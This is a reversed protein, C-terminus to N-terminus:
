DGLVPTFGGVQREWLHRYVGNPIELLNSHTGQEVVEGQRLVVIRDMAMVTSLRHAIVILTKGDMLNHIADQVLAESESDLASTAEDLIIIPANALIARAIAVRQREGGSLKVGREGVLTAYGLPLSSIFEHCHAAKAATVVEEDSATQNGYRINEALSRHFLFPEQPVVAISRRLSKQTVRSIDQGDILIEGSTVDMYRLLLKTLTTKGSGSEGVLAVREGSRILLNFNHIAHKGDFYRFCVGTFDVAGSPVVLEKAELADVVHVPERLMETLENGNALAEYLQRVQRGFDWLHDFMQLLYAQLLAFDGPTLGYQGRRTFALYMVVGELTVMSVGQVVEGWQGLVWAKLRREYSEEVKMRFTDVEVEETGFAKVTVANGVVDAIHATLRTEQESSSVDFRLKYRAFCVSFVLFCIAWLLIVNSFTPLYWRLILIIGVCRIITRSLNWKVQDDVTQFSYPYRRIKNVISGSHHGHFFKLSHQLISEFGTMLLDSMVRSVFRANTFGMTRWGVQHLIGLAIIQGVLLVGAHAASLSDDAVLNLLQRYLIPRVIDIATTLAIGVVAIFIPVPYRFAHRAFIRCTYKTVLEKMYVGQLNHTPTTNLFGEALWPNRSFIFNAYIKSKIELCVCVKNLGYVM